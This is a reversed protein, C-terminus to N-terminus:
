KGLKIVLSLDINFNQVMFYYISRIEFAEMIVEQLYIFMFYNCIIDMCTLLM